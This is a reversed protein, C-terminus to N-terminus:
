PQEKSGSAGIWYLENKARTIAVYKLNTEQELQWPKKALPHPMLEPSLIFIRDAELGKSKHVTCYVIGRLTDDFISNIKNVIDLVRHDKPDAKSISEAICRITDVTDQHVILREEADKRRSIKVIEEESWTDLEKLFEDLITLNTSIRLVLKTLGDGIDKGKVMAKRGQRIMALCQEVLPKTTRCLVFDGDAVRTAYDGLSITSVKGESATESWEITPVIQQAEQVVAKSCRYCISLPLRKANLMQGFSYMARTDAGRFGYIAQHTDGVAIVRAKCSCVLDMQIPNLDQSEDVFLYDYAPVKLNRYVPLFIQDDFDIRTEDDL